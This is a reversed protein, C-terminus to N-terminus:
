AESGVLHGGLIHLGVVVVGGDNDLRQCVPQGLGERLIEMCPRSAVEAVAHVLAEGVLFQDLLAIAADARREPVGGTRVM